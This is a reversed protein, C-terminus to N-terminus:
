FNFDTNELNHKRIRSKSRPNDYFYKIPLEQKMMEKLNDVSTAKDFMTLALVPKINGSSKDFMVLSLHYGIGGCEYYIFYLKDSKGAFILRRNPYRDDVIDTSNFTGNVKAMFNKEKSHALTKLAKIISKPIDHIDRIEEFHSGLLQYEPMPLSDSNDPRDQAYSLSTVLIIIFLLIARM